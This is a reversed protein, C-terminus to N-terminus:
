ASFKNEFVWRDLGLFLGKMLPRTIKMTRWVEEQKERTTAYKKLYTVGEKQEYTLEDNLIKAYLQRVEPRVNKAQATKRIFYVACAEAYNNHATLWEITSNLGQLTNWLITQEAFPVYDWPDAKHKKQLIDELAKAHGLEEWTQHALDKMVDPYQARWVNYAILASGHEENYHRAKLVKVYEEDTKLPVYSYAVKCESEVEQCLDQVDNEIETILSDVGAM